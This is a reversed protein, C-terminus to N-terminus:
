FQPKPTPLWPSYVILIGPTISVFSLATPWVALPKLLFMRLFTQLILNKNAKSTWDLGITIFLPFPSKLLLFYVKNWNTRCSKRCSPCFYLGIPAEKHSPAAWRSSCMWLVCIGKLLVLFTQTDAINKNTWLKLELRMRTQIYLTCTHTHTHTPSPNVTLFEKKLIWKDIDKYSRDFEYNYTM